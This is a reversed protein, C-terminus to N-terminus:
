TAPGDLHARWGCEPVCGDWCNKCMSPGGIHGIEQAHINDRTGCHLCWTGQKAVARRQAVKAWDTLWTALEHAQAPTVDIWADNDAGMHSLRLEATEGEDALDLSAPGNDLALPVLRGDPTRRTM